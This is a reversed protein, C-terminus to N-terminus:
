PICGVLGTAAHMHCYEPMNNKVNALEARVALYVAGAVWM